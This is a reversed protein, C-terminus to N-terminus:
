ISKNLIKVSGLEPRVDPNIALIVPTGVPVTNPPISDTAAPISPVAVPPMDPDLVLLRLEFTVVCVLATSDVAETKLLAMLSTLPFNAREVFGERVAFVSKYRIKVSGLKPEVDPNIVLIIPTGVPVTKPAMSATAAAISPVADPPIDPDLVFLRRAFSPTVSMLEIVFGTSVPSPPDPVL